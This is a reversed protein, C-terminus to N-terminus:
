QGLSTYRAELENMLLAFAEQDVSEMGSFDVLSVHRESLCKDLFRLFAQMEITTPCSSFVAGRVNGIRYVFLEGQMACGNDGLESVDGAVTLSMDDRFYARM